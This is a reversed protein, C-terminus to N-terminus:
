HRSTVDWMPRAAGFMASEHSLGVDTALTKSLKRLEQREKARDQMTLATKILKGFM